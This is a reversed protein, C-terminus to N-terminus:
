RTLAAIVVILILGGLAVPIVLRRYRPNMTTSDLDRSPSPRRRHPVTARTLM